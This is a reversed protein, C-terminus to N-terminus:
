KQQRETRRQQELLRQNTQNIKNIEDLTRLTRQIAADQTPPPPPTAVRRLGAPEQGKRQLEERSPTKQEEANKPFRYEITTRNEVNRFTLASRRDKLFKALLYYGGFLAAVGMGAFLVILVAKKFNM